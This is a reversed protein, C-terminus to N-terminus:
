LEAATGPLAVLGCQRFRAVLMQLRQQLRLAADESLPYGRLAVGDHAGTTVRFHNLFEAVTSNLRSSVADALRQPSSAWRVIAKVTSPRWRCQAEIAELRMSAFTHQIDWYRTPLLPVM